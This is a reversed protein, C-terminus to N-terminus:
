HFQLDFETYAKEFAKKRRRSVPLSISGISVMDNKYRDIWLMNVITQRHIRFFLRKELLAEAESLSIEKRFIQDQICLEISSGFSYIYRIHKQLVQYPNRDKYVEITQCGIQERIYSDFMEEIESIQFPKTLFRYARFQFVEKFRDTRCTAMVIRCAPNRRLIECGTEIGDMESMEIDLFVIQFTEIEKLLQKGSTFATSDAMLNKRSCVTDIEKKLLDLIIKDDDCIAIKIM